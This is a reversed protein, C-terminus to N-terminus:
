CVRVYMTYGKTHVLFFFFFFQIKVYFSETEREDNEAKAGLSM